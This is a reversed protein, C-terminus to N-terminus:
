WGSWGAGGPTATVSASARSRSRRQSSCPPTSAHIAPQLHHRLSQVEGCALWPRRGPPTPLAPCIAPATPFAPRATQISFFLPPPLVPFQRWPSSRARGAPFSHQLVSLKRYARRPSPWDGRAASLVVIIRGSTAQAGALPDVRRHRRVARWNGVALLDPVHRQAPSHGAWGLAPHARHRYPQGTRSGASPADCRKQAHKRMLSQSTGPPVQRASSTTDRRVRALAKSKTPKVAVDVPRLESM